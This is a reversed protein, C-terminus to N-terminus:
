AILLNDATSVEVYSPGVQKGFNGALVVVLDDGTIVNKRMLRRLTDQTFEKRSTEITILDAYVGYTLALERMVRKDYCQMFIPANGRFAALYRATKGTDTDAIIAKVGLRSVARVSTKALFESIFNDHPEIQRAENFESHQETSVATKAMIEVSEIPYAGYATEGSLMIADAGSFVANAIDTVEARTPRPHQIMSHLMQTAVIVPKRHRICKEVISRQIVPIEEAPIEIAMDGRAVMVGHVLPLIEDLNDVGQRNEIKAIIKIKSKHEDLIEQIAMVDEKCRVFSHAIFALDLGIALEIFQRDREALAPLDVEIGPLNVSKRRKIIGSNLSICLLHDANKEIVELAIDGDDIMVLSGKKLVRVIGGYSVCLCSESTIGPGQLKIKSGKEVTIDIGQPSTRIEPGKTDVIIPIKDSVERVNGVLYRLSETTQHATNVRVADMGAKHLDSIFKHDCRQDSLTGIIKTLKKIMYSYHIM